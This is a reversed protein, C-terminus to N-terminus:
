VLAKPSIGLGEAIKYITNLTPLFAPDAELMRKITNYSVKTRNALMQRTVHPGMAKEMAKARQERTM